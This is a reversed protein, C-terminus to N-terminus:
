ASILKAAPSSQHHGECEEAPALALLEPDPELELALAEDELQPPPPERALALAPLLEPPHPPLELQADLEAKPLKM